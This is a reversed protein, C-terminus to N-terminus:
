LKEQAILDVVTSTALNESQAREYVNWLSNSIGQIRHAITETLNKDEPLQHNAHAYQTAAYILGGANILYDPAYLVGREHLSLGDHPTALQNNACGAVINAKIRPITQQNLVAGLACPAFVDCEVDFIQDVPVTKANCHTVCEEVTEPNIDSVTLKAGRDHLKRALDLGVHGLGQIAVHINKLSDQGLRFKVSTEIAYLVGDATYPSPDGKLKSSSALYPTEQSIIDMDAISTGSDVATIFRGGLQDVFRGFARFYAERDRIHTPKMLVAKGGGHAIGSIAAKFSMGRALRLADHIADASNNYAICRTGGLAPGNKTSHIAVIARLGTTADFAIHIDGFKLQEAYNFIADSTKEFLFEAHDINEM